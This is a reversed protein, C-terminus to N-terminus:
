ESDKRLPHARGRKVVLVLKGLNHIDRLPDDAVVLLNALKGPEVTGMDREADLARAGVLTASRIAELPTFGCREVLFAIEDLVAPYELDADSDTGTSVEVGARHAQATLAAALEGPPSDREWMSGTADLITGRARMDAFLATIAPHAGDLFRGHDIDPKDAYTTLPRSPEQFALMTVHSITDVGARVVEAPTAPFVAAHAWVRLGQRHAEATLAAVTAGPLDAYIKIATAHTGRAMAVALRLDTGPEIAQMWPVAGPTEGQSVQWTRPDEFFSPGAALAAYRLDPAAIEGVRSARALDAIQRLDDAMIRVATVGGLLDRRLAAEARPRDPPTALHQHTDILGPLVFRGGLDVVRVGGASASVDALAGMGGSPERAGMGGSPESARMDGIPERARMDGTPEPADPGPASTDPAVETIRDGTVVVSMGPRPPAGTGDVLVCNRYVVTAGPAPPAHPTPAGPPTFSM